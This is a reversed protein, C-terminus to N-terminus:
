AQPGLAQSTGPDHRYQANRNKQNFLSLTCSPDQELCCPGCLLLRRFQWSLGSSRCSFDCRYGVFIRLESDVTPVDEAQNAFSIAIVLFSSFSVGHGVAEVFFIELDKAVEGEDLNLDAVKLAEFYGGGGTEVGVLVDVGGHGLRICSVRRTRKDKTGLFRACQIVKATACWRRPSKAM